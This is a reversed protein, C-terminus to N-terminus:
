GMRSASWSFACRRERRFCRPRVWAWSHFRSPTPWTRIASISALGPSTLTSWTTLSSDASPAPRTTRSTSPPDAEGTAAGAGSGPEDAGPGAGRFFDATTAPLARLVADLSRMGAFFPEQHARREADPHIALKDAVPRDLSAGA